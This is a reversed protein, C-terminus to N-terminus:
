KLLRRIDKKDMLGENNLKIYNEIIKSKESHIIEGLKIKIWESKNVKLIDAVIELDALLEKPLRLNVQETGKKM